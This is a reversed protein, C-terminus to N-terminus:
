RTPGAPTSAAAQSSPEDDSVVLDNFGEDAGSPRIGVGMMGKLWGPNIPIFKTMPKISM